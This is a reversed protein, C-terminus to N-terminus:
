LDRNASCSEFHAYVQRKYVDLHTYSVAGLVADAVQDPTVHDSGFTGLGVAPMRAGTYLTRQPVLAPSVLERASVVVEGQQQM